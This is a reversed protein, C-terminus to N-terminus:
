FEGVGKGLSAAASEAGKLLQIAAALSLTSVAVEGQTRPCGPNGTVFVPGM